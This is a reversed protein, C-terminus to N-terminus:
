IVTICTVQFTLSKLNDGEELKINDEKLLKDMTTTYKVQNDFSNKETFTVDTPATDCIREDYIFKFKCIPITIRFLSDSNTRNKGHATDISRRNRTDPCTCTFASCKKVKKTVVCFTLSNTNNKDLVTYLRCDVSSICINMTDKLGTELNDEIFLNTYPM